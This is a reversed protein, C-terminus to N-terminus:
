TTVTISVSLSSVPRPPLGPIQKEPVPKIAIVIKNGAELTINQNEESERSEWDPQFDLVNLFVWDSTTM